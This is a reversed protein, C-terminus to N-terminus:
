SATQQPAVTAAPPFADNDSDPSTGADSRDTAPSQHDPDFNDTLPAPPTPDTNAPSPRPVDPFHHVPIRRPRTSTPQQSPDPRFLAKLTAITTQPAEDDTALHWYCTSLEALAAREHFGTRDLRNRFHTADINWKTDLLDTAFADAVERPLNAINAPTPDWHEGLAEFIACLETDSFKPTSRHLIALYRDLIGIIMQGPDRDGALSLTRDFPDGSSTSITLPRRRPKKDTTTTQNTSM